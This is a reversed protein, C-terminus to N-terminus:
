IRVTPLLLIENNPVSDILSKINQKTNFNYKKLINHHNTIYEKANQSFNISKIDQAYHSLYDALKPSNKIYLYRDKRTTFYSHSLNAGTLIIDNDAIIIKTHFVGFLEKFISPLHKNFPFLSFNPNNYLYLNNRLPFLLDLSNRGKEKRECRNKDMIISLKINKDRTKSYLKNILASELKGTGLYLSTITIRKTAKEILSLITKYFSNPTSIFRMQEVSLFFRNLCQNNM